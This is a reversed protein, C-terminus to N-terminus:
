NVRKGYRFQRLSEVVTYIDREAQTIEDYFIGFEYRQIFPKCKGILDSAKLLSEVCEQIEQKTDM